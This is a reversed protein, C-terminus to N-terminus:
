FLLSAIIYQVFCTKLRTFYQIIQRVDPYVILSKGMIKRISDMMVREVELLWDEVNGKPYLPESLPVM